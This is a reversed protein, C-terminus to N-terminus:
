GNEFGSLTFKEMDIFETRESFFVRSVKILLRSSVVVEADHIGRSRGSSRLANNKRVVVDNRRTLAANQQQKQFM